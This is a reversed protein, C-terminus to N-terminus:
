ARNRFHQWVRRNAEARSCGADRLRRGMARKELAIDLTDPKGRNLMSLFDRATRILKKLPQPKM